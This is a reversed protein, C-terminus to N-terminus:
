PKTLNEPPLMAEILSEDPVQISEWLIPDADIGKMLRRVEAVTLSPLRLYVVIEPLRDRDPIMVFSKREAVPLERLFLFLDRKCSARFQITM